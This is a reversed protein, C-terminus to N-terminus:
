YTVICNCWALIYFLVLSPKTAKYSMRGPFPAPRNKCGWLGCPAHLMLNVWRFYCFPLLSSLCPFSFKAIQLLFCCKRGFRGVVAYTIIMLLWLINNLVKKKITQNGFDSVPVVHLYTCVKKFWWYMTVYQVKSNFVLSTAICVVYTCFVLLAELLLVHFQEM